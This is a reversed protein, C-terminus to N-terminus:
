FVRIPRIISPTSTPIGRLNENPARAQNEIPNYRKGDLGLRLFWFVDSGGEGVNVAVINSTVIGANASLGDIGAKQTFGEVSTRAIVQASVQAEEWSPVVWGDEKQETELYTFVSITDAYRSADPSTRTVNNEEAKAIEDLANQHNDIGDGVQFGRGIPAGVPVSGWPNFVIPNPNGAAFSSLAWLEQVIRDPAAEMYSWEHDNDEDVYVIMGGAPGISGVERRITFRISRTVESEGGSVTVAITTTTGPEGTFTFSDGSATEQLVGDQRWTYTLALDQDNKVEVTATRGTITIATIEFPTEGSTEDNVLGGGITGDGPDAPGTTNDEVEIAVKGPLDDKSIRASGSTVINSVIRASFHSLEANSGSIIRIEYTGPDLEKSVHYDGEETIALEEWGEDTTVPARQYKVRFDELDALDVKEETNGSKFNFGLTGKEELDRVTISLSSSQGGRVTLPSSGTGLVTGRDNKAEVTFNWEGPALRLADVAATRAFEREVRAGGPGTGVLTFESITLSEDPRLDPQMVSSTSLSSASMDLRLSVTGISHVSEHLGSLINSCGSLVLAVAVVAACSFKKM